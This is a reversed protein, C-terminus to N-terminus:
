TEFHSGSSHVFFHKWFPRGPPSCFSVRLTTAWGFPPALHKGKAAIFFHLKCGQGTSQLTAVQLPQLLHLASHPPPTWCRTRSTSRAMFYPPLGQPEVDSDMAHLMLAHSFSQSKVSHVLHDQHELSQSPPVRLRWFNTFCAGSPAPFHALLHDGARKCYLFQLMFLHGTGTLLATICHLWDKSMKNRM